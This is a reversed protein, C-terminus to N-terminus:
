NSGADPADCSDPDVPQCTGGTCTLPFLCGSPSTCPDGRSGPVCTGGETSTCTAGAACPGGTTALPEECAHGLPTPATCRLTDPDCYTDPACGRNSCPSGAGPLPECTGGTSGDALVCVHTGDCQGAFCAAGPAGPPACTGNGADGGLCLVGTAGSCAGSTPGRNTILPACPSGVDPLPGCSGTTGGDTLLCALGAKCLTYPMVTPHCPAGVDGAPWCAYTRGIDCIFGDTCDLDSCPSGAEPYPSPACTGCQNTGLFCNLSACQSHYVCPTGAPRTGPTVCTPNAEASVAACSQANLQAICAETGDPTRTSGRSFLYEPCAAAVRTCATEPEGCAERLACSATIYDICAQRATLRAADSADATAGGDLSAAGSDGSDKAGTSADRATSAPDGSCGPAALAGLVCTSSVLAALGLRARTM